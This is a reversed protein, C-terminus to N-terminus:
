TSGELLNGSRYVLARPGSSDVFGGGAFLPVRFSLTKYHKCSNLARTTTVWLVLMVMTYTFM